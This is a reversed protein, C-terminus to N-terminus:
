NANEDDREKYSQPILKTWEGMTILKSHKICVIRIKGLIVNM